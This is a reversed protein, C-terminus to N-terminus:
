ENEEDGEALQTITRQASHEIARPIVGGPRRFRYDLTNRYTQESVNFLDEQQDTLRDSNFCAEGLNEPSNAHRHKKLKDSVEKMTFGLAEHNFTDRTRQPIGSDAAFKELTMGEATDHYKKGLHSIAEYIGGYSLGGRSAQRAATGLFSHYIISNLANASATDKLANEFYSDALSVALGADSGVVHKAAGMEEYKALTKNVM